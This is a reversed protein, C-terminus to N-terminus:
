AVPITFGGNELFGYGSNMAQIAINAKFGLHECLKLILLM